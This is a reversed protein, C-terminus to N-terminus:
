NWVDLVQSCWALLFTATVRLIVYGFMFPLALILLATVVLNSVIM